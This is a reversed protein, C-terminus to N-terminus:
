CHTDLAASSELPAHAGRLGCALDTSTESGASAAGALTQGTALRVPLQRVDDHDFPLTGVRMEHLLTAAERGMKSEDIVVSTLSRHLAGDRRRGGFGVLSVDDPVRIGCRSLLVYLLEAIPDFSAFIATSPRPRRFM